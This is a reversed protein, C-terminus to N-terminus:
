LPTKVHVVAKGEMTKAFCTAKTQGEAKESQALGSQDHVTESTQRIGKKEENTEMIETSIFTTTTPKTFAYSEEYNINIQSKIHRHTRSM